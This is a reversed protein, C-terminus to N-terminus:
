SIGIPSRTKKLFVRRASDVYESLVLDEQKPKYKFSQGVKEYLHKMILIDLFKCGLGFTKEMAADLEEIKNPVDQKEINFTTKLHFYITQKASDGLSTLSADVAELIIKDFDRRSM